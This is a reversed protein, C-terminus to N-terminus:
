VSTSNHVNSLIVDLLMELKSSIVLYNQTGRRILTQMLLSISIRLICSVKSPLLPINSVNTVRLSPGILKRREINDTTKMFKDLGLLSSGIDLPIIYPITHLLEQEIKREDEGRNMTIKVYQADFENVEDVSETRFVLGTPLMIEIEDKVFSLHGISAIPKDQIESQEIRLCMIVSVEDSTMARHGAFVRAVDEVRSTALFNRTIFMNKKM